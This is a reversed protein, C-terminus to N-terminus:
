PTVKRWLLMIYKARIQIKLSETLAQYYAPLRNEWLMIGHRLGNCAPESNSLDNGSAAFWQNLPADFPVIFFDELTEPTGVGTWLKFKTNARNAWLRNVIAGAKLIKKGDTGAPVSAIDLPLGGPILYDSGSGLAEAIFSPPDYTASFAVVRAM